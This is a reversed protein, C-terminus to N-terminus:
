AFTNCNMKGQAVKVEPHACLVDTDANRCGTDTVKVTKHMVQAHQARHLVQLSYGACTPFSCCPGTTDLSQM